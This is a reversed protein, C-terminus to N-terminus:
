SWNDEKLNSIESIWISIMSYIQRDKFMRWIHRNKFNRPSCMKFFFVLSSYSIYNELLSFVNLLIEPIYSYTIKKGLITELKLKRLDEVEITLRMKVNARRLGFVKDCYVEYSNASPPSPLFHPIKRHLLNLNILLLLFHLLM